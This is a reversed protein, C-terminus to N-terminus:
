SKSAQIDPLPLVTVRTSLVTSMNCVPETIMVSYDTTVPPSAKPNAIDSNSLGATPTWSYIDGGSALLRVSDQSCIQIGGNVAFVPLPKVLVKVSDSYKCNNADTVTVHYMTSDIPSAVPNNIGADSLTASPTWSYSSGGNAFIQVTANACIITDRSKTITAEPHLSVLVTDKAICGNVTTGVVHYETPAIPSAIPNATNADSLGTAPSWVYTQAGTTTLTVPGGKCVTIDDITKVVPKEVTIRVSDRKITMSTFAIDDLAFLTNPALNKNVISLVASTSSGANWNATFPVWTCTGQTLLSGAEVGNIFFHVDAGSLAQLTTVWASFNYATNPVVNITEQWVKIDPSASGNVKMMNGSGAARETCGAAAPNFSQLSNAVFYQGQITSSAISTYQTNFGINGQSFDGNVVLNNGPVLATFYYMIDQPTSTTPQRLLPDDLYTVPTWCFSTADVTRLLKTAGICITTDPTLIINERLINLNIAKTLTDSCFGDSASYRVNYIGEGAYTHAATLSGILTNNDGFDWYPNLVNIGNGTFQVTLPACPDITYSFDFNLPDITVSSLVSDKCGNLDTIILKVNYTGAAAYTHSTNQTAATNGDGFYWDWTGVPTTNVYGLGEFDFSKCATHTKNMKVSDINAKFVVADIPLVLNNVTAGNDGATAGWPDNGQNLNVGSLGGNVAISLNADAGPKNTWVIGGGGGGGPGHLGEIPQAINDDGKGGKASVSLPTTISTYNLLITGGAGGGSRGDDNNGIIHNVDGGDAKIKYSSADITNASIIVIGGGNGGGGLPSDDEHGAGGGGGLFVRNSVNSYPLQLGGVGGNTLNVNCVIGVYQKGGEGGKGANGGGAGGSNTSNGGGGGNALKGRGSLKQTTYLGEGKRNGNIGNNNILYFSDIDCHYIANRTPAGGNFGKGTVAIDRGLALNNQVNFALVGGKSGDWPLCTLVDNNTYNDFYPVRILQVKGDPLDYQRTLVNKLEIVNGAKGKVYNYEYNGANKYDTVNGFAATNTSDIVAGKMQMIIVTDGVNFDTANQVTIKNHCPELSLVPTYKNIIISDCTQVIVQKCFTTQTPLGDDLTLNINYTGPTNYTIPPPNQLTSNPISANTCGAFRLRTITNNDANSVFAYLDPGQRFIKSISVPFSMNGINGFSSLTPVSNLDNNFNIKVLDNSGIAGNVAFGIIEGCFKMITLDRPHKLINGPNGLNVGTPTNLLSNGFDLRTISWNGTTRDLTGGNTIFVKWDNNDKIAYIGDPYALGGINGLNIATPTNNFSNTFNFRTITNNDGNVTFGYWNGNDQFVHLDLPQAMNGLNGWDTAVGTTSTLAAGFDIKIIRETVAQLSSGGVLIAYWRGENQVIQIGEAYTPIKGGFNGLDTATPANLLSNGFNLRILRGPVFNTSFGYYNNNYFAYDMFTPVSLLGGVNGLNAGIPPNNLNGQCFNWFYSTAGVSTNTITVPKNVCVVDTADFSATVVPPPTQCTEPVFNCVPNTQQSSANGVLTGNWTANGTKNLLNDFRYYALLGTENDTPLSSGMYTQILAQPRVVNWIRVENVYGILQTNNITGDYLGVHTKFNNQFMTGTAPVSSMLYGDRYFKLTAGDYTMAVHYTKNLDIECIAPTAFYGNSTTIEAGNPRLLYNADSPTNHKSVIDGAWAAGGTYPATRVFQAEVTINTGPIDLDGINFYGPNNGLKLWTDCSSASPVFCSVPVFACVTNTQNIACSNIITGNYTANGQQNTLNNFVYHGLLGPPSAPLPSTMYTNLEDQTRCVNWIRVENIYGLFQNIGTGAGSALQGISALLDNNILDGTCPTQSILYGDRYFKLTAGDYTMAVHYNKNLEIPCTQFIAQYGTGTTNIECGNPLLSYNVDGQTTHKSVLSGYYLGSNLAATRNFTAEITIQNGTVDLDGINVYSNGGTINLWNDCALTTQRSYDPVEQSYSFTTTALACFLFIIRKFFSFSSFSSPQNGPLDPTFDPRKELPQRSFALLKFNM